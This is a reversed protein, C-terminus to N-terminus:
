EESINNHMSYNPQQALQEFHWNTARLRRRKKAPTSHTSFSDVTCYWFGSKADYQLTVQKSPVNDDGMYGIM